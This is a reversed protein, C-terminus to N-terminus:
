LQSQINNPIVNYNNNYMIIHCQSLIYQFIACSMKAEEISNLCMVANAIFQQTINLQGEFLIVSKSIARIRPFM